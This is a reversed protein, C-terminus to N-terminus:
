DSVKQANNAPRPKFKSSWARLGIDSAHDRLDVKQRFISGHVVKDLSYMTYKSKKKIRSWVLGVLFCENVLFRAYNIVESLMADVIM